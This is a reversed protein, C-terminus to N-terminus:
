GIFQPRGAALWADYRERMKAALRDYNKWTDAVAYVNDANEGLIETYDFMYHSDGNKGEYYALAFANGDGSFEQVTMKEDLVTLLFQAGTIDRARLAAIEGGADERLGDSALDHCLMWALFMGIHTAGAETPLNDPFEGGYHRFADGDKM